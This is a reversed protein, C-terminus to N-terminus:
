RHDMKFSQIAEKKTKYTVPNICEYIATKPNHQSTGYGGNKDECYLETPNHEEVVAWHSNYKYIHYKTGNHEITEKFIIM